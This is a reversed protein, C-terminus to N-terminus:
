TMATHATSKGVPPSSCSKIFPIPICPFSITPLNPLKFVINPKPLLGLVIMGAGLGGCGPCGVIVPVITTHDDQSTTLWTNATLGSSSIAQTSLGSPAVSTISAHIPKDVGKGTSTPTVSARGVGGTPKATTTPNTGSDEPPLPNNPFAENSISYTTGDGVVSGGWFSPVSDTICAKIISNFQDSCFSLPVTALSQSLSSSSINFFYSGLNWYNIDTDGIRDEVVSSKTKSISCADSLPNASRFTAIIKAVSPDSQERQQKCQPGTPINPFNSPVTFDKTTPSPAARSHVYLPLYLLLFTRLSVKM